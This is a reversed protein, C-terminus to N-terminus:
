LWEGVIEPYEALFASTFALVDTLRVPLEPLAGLRDATGLIAKRCIQLAQERSYQGAQRMSSVYGRGGPGWWRGHEHSWILYVATLGDATERPAGTTGTLLKEGKFTTGSKLDAIDAWRVERPWPYFLIGNMKQIVHAASVAQSVDLVACHTDRTSGERDIIVFNSATSICVHVTRTDSM